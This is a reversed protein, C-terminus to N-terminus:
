LNRENVISTTLHTVLSSVLFSSMSDLLSEYREVAAAVSAVSAESNVSASLV